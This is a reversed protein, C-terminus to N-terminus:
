IADLAADYIQILQRDNEHENYRAEYVRRAAVGMEAMRGIAWDVKAALDNANGPTFHLGTVGDDDDIIEDM